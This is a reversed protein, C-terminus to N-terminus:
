TTIGDFNLTGFGDKNKVEFSKRLSEHYPSEIKSNETVGTTYSEEPSLRGSEGATLSVSVQRTPTLMLKARRRLDSTKQDNLQLVQLTMLGKDTNYGQPTIFGDEDKVLGANIKQNIQRFHQSMKVDGLKFSNFGGLFGVNKISELSETQPPASCYPTTPTPINQKNQKKQPPNPPQKTSFTHENQQQADFDSNTEKMTQEQFIPQTEQDTEIVKSHPEVQPDTKMEVIEKQPLTETEGGEGNDKGIDPLSTNLIDCSMDVGSILNIDDLSEDLKLQRRVKFFKPSNLISDDLKRCTSKRSVSDPTDLNLKRCVGSSSPRQGLPSALFSSPSLL